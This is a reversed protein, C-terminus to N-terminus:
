NLSEILKLLNNKNQKTNALAYPFDKQDEHVFISAIPFDDGSLSV